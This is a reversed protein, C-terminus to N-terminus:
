AQEAGGPIYNALLSRGILGGMGMGGGWTFVKGASDIVVFDGSTHAVGTANAAGSMGLCGALMAVGLRCLWSKM